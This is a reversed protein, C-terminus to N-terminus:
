YFVYAWCRSRCEGSLGLRFETIISSCNVTAIGVATQIGGSSLFSSSITITPATIYGLGSNGISVSSALLRTTRATGVTALGVTALGTIGTPASFTVTPALTYGAGVSTISTATVTGYFTGAAGIAGVTATAAATISTTGLGVTASPQTGSPDSFTVTPVSAYETGGSDRICM